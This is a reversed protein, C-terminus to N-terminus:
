FGEKDRSKENLVPYIWRIKAAKFMYRNLDAQTRVFARVNLLM